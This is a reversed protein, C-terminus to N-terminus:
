TAAGWDGPRDGPHAPGAAGGRVASLQDRVARRARHVHSMATGEPLGLARAIEAYPLDVVTRLLLCARATPELTMLARRLDDDFAGEDAILEGRSTVGPRRAPDHAAPAHDLDAPDSPSTRRRHRKRSENSATNRVIRGMWALFSTGPDFQALIPLAILAAQQVLDDASARDGTLGFALCWLAHHSRQFLGAFEDRSLRGPAISSRGSESAQGPGPEM